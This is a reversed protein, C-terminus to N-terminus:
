HAGRQLLVAGRWGRADAPHKAIADLAAQIRATDDGSPDPALKAIVPLSPLAVGGGGYGARSFDPITNGREDARYVLKGNEGARAWESTAAPAAFAIGSGAFRCVLIVIGPLLRM